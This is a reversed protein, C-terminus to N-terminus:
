AGVKLTPSVGSVVGRGPAGVARYSGPRMTVRKRFRGRGVTTTRGITVWGNRVFRQLTVPTGARAPRVSGALVAGSRRLRVAAAVSVRHEPSTGKPSTVRFWTTARPRTKLTFEGNARSLPGM